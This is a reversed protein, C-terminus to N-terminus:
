VNLSIYVKTKWTISSMIAFLLQKFISKTIGLELLLENKIALNDTGEDNIDSGDGSQFTNSNERTFVQGIKNGGV